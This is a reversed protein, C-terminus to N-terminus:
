SHRAFEGDLFLNAIDFLVQMSGRYGVHCRLGNGMRDIIPFGMRYLPVGLRKSISRGNSNTVLLDTEAALNEFDELDSILVSEVPLQTLLPSQTTTVAVQVNAGVATLWWAAAYLLDPELALAIRQRGFYFHVDLMADQLQRRQRLYRRPIERGSLRSLRNLLADTELLGMLSPFVQFDTQFRTKLIKAAGRLSEGLVISFRSRGIAKLDEVSTGGTTTTSFEDALHGDLSESLDPVAIAKLGFAEVIDKIEQVDGPAFASSMLLTVQQPDVDGGLPISRMMGEVAAAFGDQLAGRFDPTSAFAIPIESLEPHKKRFSKLAAPVDDGRTETLGTTCLGISKPQFREVLTLLAEEVNEEGGLITSIETMATTALPITEQFHNVLMVKSFATCGQAGHFLSISGDLGLFALAAGLPQSQKLPNVSLNKQPISVKTTRTATSLFTALASNERGDNASQLFEPTFVAEVADDWPTPRTVQSWVPNYIAKDLEQALAVLGKYGAYARHREQNIHLFPLRGKMATFQNRGGAIMIDANLRNSLALLKQGGGQELMVGDEGLLERIRAKDEETSKRTSTAVVDIGLDKLASIVSWSKVGGTYLLARKGQLRDRYPSLSRDLKENEEAIVREVREKLAPDGIKAAINRLCRSMDTAGYFSEELYPIGYREEMKRAVNLLARACILVNLKARHAYQVENFRGDGSIKSLVRIGVKEFLPLVNWLEGAINYEGILNIDYPTTEEPEATGIVHELLAEGALRNGLNKSGVFGAAHVPVAPTGTKETAAKCVADIDEGTLATICTAYVFVAAPQYREQADLIAQYLKQEGGFIIDNETLDTTFGMKYLKPGSSGSGRNGWSNGACAISGHVLHVADAIPVLTIAAGDFSCGGQAAGPKAQQRCSKNKPQSDGHHNHNCAPENLVAKAKSTSTM